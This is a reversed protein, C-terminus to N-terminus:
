KAKLIYGQLELEKGSDTTLRELGQEIIEYKEGFKRLLKISGTNRIDAEYYFVTKDYKSRVYDLVANMAESAYGQNQESKIIWIGLAPCDGILGHIEVSGIFEDNKSLISFLLTEERDMENLFEQLMSRADDVSELPDPWQYKTIETSFGVFYENLYKMEFPVVSIRESRIM